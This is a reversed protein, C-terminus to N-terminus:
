QTKAFKESQKILFDMLQFENEKKLLDKTQLRGDIYELFLGIKDTPINLQTTFFVDPYIQRIVDSPAYTFEDGEDAKKKRLSKYMLKFINVFDVGEYLQNKRLIENEVRTSKDSTYDFKKFEEEQLDLFKEPRTPSVVVEDLATIKENVDVVLRNRQLIGKTIIIARIEYQVSSIILEDGLKVEIAFEGNDDTITANESNTNLINAAVVSSDQYLVKGRLWTRYDQQAAAFVATFFLLLTISKRM